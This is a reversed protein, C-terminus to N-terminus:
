PLQGLPGQMTPRAGTAAAVDDAEVLARALARERQAVLDLFETAGRMAGFTDFGQELFSQLAGLGAARAPGRMLKLSQRLLRNRTYRELAQGVSM